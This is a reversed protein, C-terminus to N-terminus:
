RDRNILRGLFPRALQRTLIYDLYKDMWRDMWGSLCRYEYVIVASININSRDKKPSSRLTLLPQFGVPQLADSHHLQQHHHHSHRLGCKFKLSDNKCRCFPQMQIKQM